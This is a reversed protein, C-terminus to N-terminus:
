PKRREKRRLIDSKHEHCHSKSMNGMHEPDDSLIDGGWSSNGPSSGASNETFKMGGTAGASIKTSEGLTAPGPSIGMIGELRDALARPFGSFQETLLEPVFAATLIGHRLLRNSLRRKNFLEPDLPEWGDQWQGQFAPSVKGLDHLGAWFTLWKGAQEVKIGLRDSIEKRLQRELVAQWLCETVAAVDMLHFLLPHFHPEESSQLSKRTKAWLAKYM